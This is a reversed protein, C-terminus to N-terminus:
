SPRWSPTPRGCSAPSGGAPGGAPEPGGELCIVLVDLADPLARRFSRRGARGEQKDLWFSPGIMGLVGLCAGGIVGYKCRSSGSSRGGGARAARPRGDPAAERRPLDAMAQRGYLGAHILRTQLLTREEEDTPVLATGMKPLATRAFQAM